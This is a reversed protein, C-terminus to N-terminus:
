TQPGAGKMSAARVAPVAARPPSASWKSYKEASAAIADLLAPETASDGTILVSEGAAVAFQAQVLTDAARLLRAPTM